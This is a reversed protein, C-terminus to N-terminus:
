LGSTVDSLSIIPQMIAAVIFGVMGGMVVLILPEMLKSLSAVTTDVEDEYYDAIKSCVESLNATQEGVLVMSAVMPPFLFDSGSLNEGLPIGQAVDQSAYGVRKSYVENGLAKSDIELAKVIPVGAKMLSSMMRAFRSVMLERILKGFVPVYLIALDISYRGQKTQRVLVLGLILSLILLVIELWYNQALESARMLLLTATPLEKGGQTFLDTLKPVVMTLILFLCVGMIILIASPYIMAGRVKSVINASKESQHAIDHLIANLNGSAEGSAVMGCDAQSFVSPHEAMAQSLSRGEEMELALKRIVSKLKVNQLQDSLVYLSRIIPMGANIMVGLLQFFTVKERLSIKSWGIVTENLSAFLGRRTKKKGSNRDLQVERLNDIREQDERSLGIDLRTTNQSDINM